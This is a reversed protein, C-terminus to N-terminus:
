PSGVNETISRVCTDNFVSTKVTKIKNIVVTLNTLHWKMPANFRMSLKFM